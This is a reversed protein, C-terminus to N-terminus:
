LRRGSAMEELAKGVDLVRDAEEETLEQPRAPAQTQYQTDEVTLIIECITLMAKVDNPGYLVRGVRRRIAESYLNIAAAVLYATDQNEAHSVNHLMEHISHTPTNM